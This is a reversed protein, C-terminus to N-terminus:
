TPLIFLIMRGYISCRNTWGGYLHINFRLNWRMEVFRHPHWLADISLRRFVDAIAHTTSAFSLGYKRRNETNKWANECWCAKSFNWLHELHVCMTHLTEFFFFFFLKGDSHLDRWIKKGKSNVWENWGRGREVEDLVLAYTFSLVLNSLLLFLSM